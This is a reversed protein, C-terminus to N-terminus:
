NLTKWWGDFPIWHWLLDLTGRLAAAYLPMRMNMKSIQKAHGGKFNM